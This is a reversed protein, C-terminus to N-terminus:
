SMLAKKVIGQARDSLTLGLAESHASASMKKWTKQVIDIMKDEETEAILADFQYEMFELCLADELVQCESDKGLDKKLNLQQVREIVEDSFGVRQLLLASQEAHFKKLATRWRLYGERGLPYTGRPIEWRKLHQCRAALLLAPSADPSLRKVWDCRKDSLFLEMPYHEGGHEIVRPDNSNVADIQKFAERLLSNTSMLLIRNSISPMLSPPFPSGAEM